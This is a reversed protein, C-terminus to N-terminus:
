LTAAREDARGLVVQHREGSREALYQMYPIVVFAPAGDAGTILQINTPANM